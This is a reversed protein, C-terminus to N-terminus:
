SDSGNTEGKPEHLKSGSSPDAYCYQPLESQEIGHWLKSNFYKIIKGCHKCTNMPSELVIKFPVREIKTLQDFYGSNSRDDNPLPGRTIKVFQFPLRTGGFLPVLTAYVDTDRPCRRHPEPITDPWVESCVEFYTSTIVSLGDSRWCSDHNSENKFVTPDGTRLDYKNPLDLLEDVYVYVRRGRTIIIHIMRVSTAEWEKHFTSGDQEYGHNDARMEIQFYMAYDQRFLRSKSQMDDHSLSIEEPVVLREKAGYDWDAFAEFLQVVTQTVSLLSDVSM